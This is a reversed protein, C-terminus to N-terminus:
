WVQLDVLLSIHTYILVGVKIVAMTAKNLVAHLVVTQDGLVTSDLLKEAPVHGDELWVLSCVATTMRCRPGKSDITHHFLPSISPQLQMAGSNAKVTLARLGEM